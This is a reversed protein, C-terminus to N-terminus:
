KGQEAEDSAEPRIMGKEKVLRICVLVRTAKLQTYLIIGFSFAMIKICHRSKKSASYTNNLFFLVFRPM